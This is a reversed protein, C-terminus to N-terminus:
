VALCFRNKVSGYETVNAHEPSSYSTEKRVKLLEACKVAAQAKVLEAAAADPAKGGTLLAAAQMEARKTALLECAVTEAM